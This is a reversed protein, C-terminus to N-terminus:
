IKKLGVFSLPVYIGKEFGFQLAGTTKVGIGTQLAIFTKARKVSFARIQMIVHLFSWPSLSM